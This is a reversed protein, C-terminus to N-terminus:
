FRFRVGGLYHFALAAGFANRVDARVMGFVIAHESVLVDVGALGQAGISPSESRETRFVGANADPAPVVTEFSSREGNIAIGGGGFPRVAGARKSVILNLGASWNTRRSHTEADPSSGRSFRRDEAHRSVIVEPSLSIHDSVPFRVNGAISFSGFGAEPYWVNTYGTAVGIDARNGPSQAYAASAPMWAVLLM